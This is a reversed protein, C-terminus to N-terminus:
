KDGRLWRNICWDAFSKGLEWAVVGLAMMVLVTFNSM